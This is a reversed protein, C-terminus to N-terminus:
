VNMEWYFHQNYVLKVFMLDLVHNVCIMVNYAPARNTQLIVM